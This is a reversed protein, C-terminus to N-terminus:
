IISPKIIINFWSNEFKWAHLNLFTFNGIAVCIQQFIVNITLCKIYILLLKILYYDYFTKASDVGLKLLAINFM